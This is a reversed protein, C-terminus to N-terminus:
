ARAEFQLNLQPTVNFGEYTFGKESKSFDMVLGEARLDSLRQRASHTMGIQEMKAYWDEIGIFTGPQLRELLARLRKADTERKLNSEDARM